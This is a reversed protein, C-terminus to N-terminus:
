FHRCWIPVIERFTALMIIGKEAFITYDSILQCKDSYIIAITLLRGNGNANIKPLNEGACFSV